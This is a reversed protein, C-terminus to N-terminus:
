FDYLVGVRVTREINPRAGYPSRAIIEQSDFANIVTAFVEPGKDFQYRSIIDVTTLADTEDFADNSKNCGLVACTKDIYKAVVYNNWGNDHEFGVRLSAINEPINQLKLGQTAGGDSTTEAKTYTYMLDVPVYFNGVTFLSGAQFELGKVLAGGIVSAGSTQGDACPTAVSCIEAKNSFDSYFGIAESYFTGKNFRLGLEYNDSKEPEEGDASGGGLPTMGEHYGALASWNDSLDYNAAIGPLFERYDNDRQKSAAALTSRDSNAFERRSTEVDEMRLSLNLLLKETAQYDDTIWLATADAEEFRNNSGTPDIITGTNVLQGNVQDYTDQPQFRDMEDHHIRAGFNLDHNALQWNFNGQLGRSKYARNNHKFNIGAQDIDGDLVGQATADGTNAAAILDEGAGAKFWDRKFENNYLTFTSSLNDAWLFTHSLSLGTHQNDMNENDTIGYRRNPDKKFDADTLGAYTENSVELSRQFKFLVKNRENEWSLKGVYDEIDFGTDGNSRDIDKFGENDRQVTELMYGWQGSKGGYNLHLDTSGNDSLMFMARGKNQEPIPTSVLNIVGGVTQPGYRLLPAGKLVEIATMRLTTPFYYAAPNSYPAPAILVGDEMLTINQSRGPAAARIGINPRLGNGDEEQIYVGPVTKLVQQIDTTAEITLQRHEVVAASGPLQRAAESDGIIRMDGLLILNEDAVAANFASGISMVAIMSSTFLTYRYSM